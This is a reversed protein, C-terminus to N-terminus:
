RSGLAHFLAESMFVAQAPLNELSRVMASYALSMQCRSGNMALYDKAIAFGFYLGGEHLSTNKITRQPFHGPALPRLVALPILVIFVLLHTSSKTVSPSRGRFALADAFCTFSQLHPTAAGLLPSPPAPRGVFSPSVGCIRGSSPLFYGSGLELGSSWLQKAAHRASSVCEGARGVGTLVLLLMRLIRLTCSETRGSPHPPSALGWREGM